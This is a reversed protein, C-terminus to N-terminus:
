DAKAFFIFVYAAAAVYLATMTMSHSYLSPAPLASVISGLSHGITLHNVIPGPPTVFWRRAYRVANFAVFLSAISAIKSSRIM